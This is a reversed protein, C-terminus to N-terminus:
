PRVPRAIASHAASAASICAADRVTRGHADLIDDVYGSLQGCREYADHGAIQGEYAFYGLMNLRPHNVPGQKKTVSSPSMPRRLGKDCTPSLVLMRPRRTQECPTFVRGSARHTRRWSAVRHRWQVGARLPFDLASQAVSRAPGHADRFEQRRQRALCSLAYALTAIARALIAIRTFHRHAQYM